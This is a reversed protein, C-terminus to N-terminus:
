GIFCENSFHLGIMHYSDFHRPRKWVGVSPDLVLKPSCWSVGDTFFAHSDLAIAAAKFQKQFEKSVADTPTDSSSSGAVGAGMWGSLRRSSSSLSSASNRAVEEGSLPYLESERGNGTGKALGNATRKGGISTMLSHAFPPSFSNAFANASTNLLPAGGEFLRMSGM